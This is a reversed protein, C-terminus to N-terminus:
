RAAESREFYACWHTPQVALRLRAGTTANVWGAQTLRCPFPLKYCEGEANKVRLWLAINQPFEVAENWWPAPAGRLTTSGSGNPM